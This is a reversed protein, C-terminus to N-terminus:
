KSARIAFLFGLLSARQQKTFNIRFAGRRKAKTAATAPKLFTFTEPKIPIMAFSETNLIKQPNKSTKEEGAVDGM